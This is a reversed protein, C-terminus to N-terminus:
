MYATKNVLIKGTKSITLPTNNEPMTDLHPSGSTLTSQIYRPNISIFNDVLENTADVEAALCM